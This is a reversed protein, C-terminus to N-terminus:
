KAEEIAGSALLPAAEGLSLEVVDGAQAYAYAGNRTYALGMLAM